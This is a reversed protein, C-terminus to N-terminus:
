AALPHILIRLVMELDEPVRYLDLGQQIQKTARDLVGFKWIQGTTVSGLLVPQNPSRDWQDLAIMEAVLQTFGYDLDERKAEIVLLETQSKLLYDLIGQLQETVKIPYEIKLEAKTQRVVELVVQSVLVERRSTENTLSVYPMVSELRTRLDELTPLDGAYQPLQLRSRCFGYGLDAALDDPEIKLEFIKSFTYSVNPQLINNM